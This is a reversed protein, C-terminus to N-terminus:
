HTSVMVEKTMANMPLHYSFSLGIEFCFNVATKFKSWIQQEPVFIVLSIFSIGKGRM